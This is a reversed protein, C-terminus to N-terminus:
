EKRSAIGWGLMPEFGVRGFLTKGGALGTDVATHNVALSWGEISDFGFANEELGSGLAYSGWWAGAVGGAMNM